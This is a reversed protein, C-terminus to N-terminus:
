NPENGADEPMYDAVFGFDDELIRWAYNGPKANTILRRLYNRMTSKEHPGLEKREGILRDIDEEYLDLQM